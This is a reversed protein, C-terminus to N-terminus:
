VLLPTVFIEALAAAFLIVVAILVLNLSDKFIMKFKKGKLDHNVWAFALIGGALAGIFYAVIEPIGHFLYKLLGTSTMNIYAFLGNASVLQDRIFSGVATAMVSANWVLIMIAGAGYFLSFLVCFFLVQLNNFFVSSVSNFDNFFSGTAGRKVTLITDIQSSFVNEFYGSPLFVALILFAALFGLFLWMLAGITKGHEQLLRWETKLKLDKQEEKLILKHFFPMVAITVLTIMVISVYSEFIWFSLFVAALSYVFGVFFIRLPHDVLKKPKLLSELVM